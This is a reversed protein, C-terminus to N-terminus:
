WADRDRLVQRLVEARDTMIGDVGLDLLRTMEDPDDITWVHVQVGRRHAEDVFRRDVITVRGQRPPVQACDATIRRAPLRYSAARLQAIGAPGMGTCLREGMARRVRAIRRDSFSGICVRDVAATRRLVDILPATASDHKPDINVRLSPWTGLIDELLPVRESAGVRAQKVEDWPMERILGARDTVRDLRDDHFAVLRDDSTAHVDTEVYRYGMDVAAEFAAMTNEVIDVGNHAGRHAFALPLDSDLFPKTTM